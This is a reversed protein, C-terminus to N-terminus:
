QHQWIYSRDGRVDATSTNMPKISWMSERQIYKVKTICRSKLDLSNISDCATGNAYQVAMCYARQNANHENICDDGKAFSLVPILLLLLIKM